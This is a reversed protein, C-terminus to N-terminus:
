KQSNENYCTYRTLAIDDIGMLARKGAEIEKRVDPFHYSDAQSLNSSYNKYKM